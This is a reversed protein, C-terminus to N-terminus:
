LSHALSLMTCIVVTFCFCLPSLDYINWHLSIYSGPLPAFLGRTKIRGNIILVTIAVNIQSWQKGPMTRLTECVSEQKIRAGTEQWLGQWRRKHACSSVPPCEAVRGLDCLWTTLPFPLLPSAPVPTLVMWLKLGSWKNSDPSRNKDSLISLLQLCRSIVLWVGASIGEQEKLWHLAYLGKSGVLSHIISLNYTAWPDEELAKRKWFLKRYRPSSPSM